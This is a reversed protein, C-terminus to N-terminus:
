HRAEASQEDQSLFEELWSKQTATAQQIQQFLLTQAEIYVKKFNTGLEWSMLWNHLAPLLISLAKVQRKQERFAETTVAKLLEACGQLGNGAEVYEFCDAESNQKLWVSDNLM